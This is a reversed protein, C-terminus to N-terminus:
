NAKRLGEEEKSLEEYNTYTLKNNDELKSYRATINELRMKLEKIEFVKDDLQKKLQLNEEEKM